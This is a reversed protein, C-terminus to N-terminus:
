YVHLLERVFMLANFTTCLKIQYVFFWLSALNMGYVVTYNIDKFTPNHIWVDDEVIDYHTYQRPEIWWNRKINTSFHLMIAYIVPMIRTFFSSDKVVHVNTVKRYSKSYRICKPEHQQFMWSFSLMIVMANSEM